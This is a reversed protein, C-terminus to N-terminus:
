RKRSNIQARVGTAGNLLEANNHLRLCGSREGIIVVSQSKDAHCVGVVEPINTQLPIHRRQRDHLTPCRLHCRALRGAQAPRLEAAATSRACLLCLQAVLLEHDWCGLRCAVRDKRDQLGDIGICPLPCRVDSGDLLIPHTSSGSFSYLLWSM